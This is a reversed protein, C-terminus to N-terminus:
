PAVGVPVGSEADNLMGVMHSESFKSKRIIAGRRSCVVKLHRATPSAEVTEFAVDSSSYAFPRTAPNV